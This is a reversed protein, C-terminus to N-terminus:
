LNRFIRCPRGVGSRCVHLFGRIFVHWMFIKEEDYEKSNEIMLETFGKISNFPNKLDHAIISFFKDKTKNMLKLDDRQVQIENNMRNIQYNRFELLNYAKKKASQQHIILILFFGFVVNNFFM